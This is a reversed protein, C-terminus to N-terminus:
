PKNAVDQDSLFFDEVVIIEHINLINYDYWEYAEDFSFQECLKTLIMAESYVVKDAYVGIIASDFGDLFCPTQIFDEILKRSM